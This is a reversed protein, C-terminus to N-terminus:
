RSAGFGIAKGDRTHMPYWHLLSVNPGAWCHKQVSVSSMVLTM